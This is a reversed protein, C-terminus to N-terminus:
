IFIVLISNDHDDEIGDYYLLTNFITFHVGKSMLAVVTENEAVIDYTIKKLNYFIQKLVYKDGEFTEQTLKILGDILEPLTLLKYLNLESIDSMDVHSEAYENYGLRKKHLNNEIYEKRLSLTKQKSRKSFEESIDIPLIVGVSVKKSFHRETNSLKMM